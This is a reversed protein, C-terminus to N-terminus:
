KKAMNINIEKMYTQVTKANKYESSPKREYQNFYKLLVIFIFAVRIKGAM